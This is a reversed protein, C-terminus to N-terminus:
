GKRRAGTRSRVHALFMDVADDVLRLWRDGGPDNAVQQSALGSLLATWLDLDAQDTVGIAAMREILLQYMAVSPAYAEPSPEFGPIPRQFLLTYRVPDEVALAVFRHAAARVDAAPDDSREISGYVDLVTQYGDAFLADYIDNKSSFYSYLSPARMGVRSALDRLSLAAPGEARLVEWAADLIERRTAARRRNVRDSNSDGLM